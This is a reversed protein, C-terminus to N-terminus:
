HDVTRETSKDWDIQLAMALFVFSAYSVVTLVPGAILEAWSLQDLVVTTSKIAILMFVFVVYVAALALTIVRIARRDPRVLRFNVYGIRL